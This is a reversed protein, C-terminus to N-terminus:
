IARVASAHWPQCIKFALFRPAVAISATPAPTSRTSCFCFLLDLIDQVVGLAVPAEHGFAFAYWGVGSKLQKIRARKTEGVPVVLKMIGALLQLASQPGNDVLVVLAEIAGDSYIM